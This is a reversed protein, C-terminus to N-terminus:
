GNVFLCQFFVYLFRFFLANDDGGEALHPVGLGNGSGNFFPQFFRAQPVYVRGVQKAYRPFVFGPFAATKKALWVKNLQRLFKGSHGCFNDAHHSFIEGGAAM